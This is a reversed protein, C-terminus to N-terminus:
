QVPRSGASLSSPIEAIQEGLREYIETLRRSFIDFTYREEAFQQAAAGVKARLTPSKIAQLLAEGYGAPTPAGLFAIREDMVQTHTPLQTAVVPKGSHLYSYIKMPTNNGKIRPSLLLDAQKLYTDLSSVPRPGLFRVQSAIGLAASRDAYYTVHDPRGGIIVISTQPVESIIRAYSELLLDIGQYSELNGIYVLLLHSTPVNAEARLDRQTDETNRGLLSIDHLVQTNPSGHQHAIAALADCVPVVALSQRVAIRECFSLLPQLPRLMRWKETLQLALSSDMDYLYPIGFLLKSLLAIFVAEEVAHVLAYQQRRARWILRLSTILFLIDCLLKKLSIGPGIGSLWSPAWIRHITTNPIQITEGEHYTLLDVRAADNKALVELALRVAIPTGREQFFPQPALFLIRM